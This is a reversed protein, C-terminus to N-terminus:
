GETTVFDKIMDNTWRYPDMFNGTKQANMKEGLIRFEVKFFDPVADQRQPARFQRAFFFHGPEKAARGLVRFFDPPRM